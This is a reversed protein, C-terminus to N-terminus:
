VLNEDSCDWEDSSDNEDDHDNFFQSRQNLILNLDRILQSSGQFNALELNDASLKRHKGGSKGDVKKLKECPNTRIENMLSDWPNVQQHRKVNGLPSKSKTKFKFTKIENLDFETPAQKSAPKQNIKAPQPSMEKLEKLFDDAPTSKKNTIQILLNPLPPPPPPPTAFIGLSSLPPPTPVKSPKFFDPLPPPPPAQIDVTQNMIESSSMLPSFEPMESTNLSKPSTESIELNNLPIEYAVGTKSKSSSKIHKSKNQTFLPRKCSTKVLYPKKAVKNSTFKSIKSSTSDNESSNKQNKQKYERLRQLAKKRNEIFLEKQIADDRKKEIITKVQLKLKEAENEKEADFNFKEAESIKNMNIRLASKKSGIDLLKRKLSDVENKLAIAEQAIHALLAVPDEYADHFNSEDESDILFRHDNLIPEDDYEILVLDATEDEEEEEFSIKEIEDFNLENLDPANLLQILQSEKLTFNTQKSGSRLKNLKRKYMLEEENCILLKVRIIKRQINSLDKQAPNQQHEIQFHRKRENLKLQLNYLEIKKTTIEDDLSNRRTKTLIDFLGTLNVNLSMDKFKERDFKMKEILNGYFDILNQKYDIYLSDINNSLSDIELKAEDVIKRLESLADSSAQGPLLAASKIQNVLKREYKEQKQEALERSDFLPKLLNNYYEAYLKLLTEIIQDDSSYNNIVHKANVLLQQKLLFQKQAELEKEQSKLLQALNPDILVNSKTSKTIKSKNINISNKTTNQKFNSLLQSKIENIQTRLRNLNFESYIEFYQESNIDNFLIDIYLKKGLSYFAKDLYIVISKCLENDQLDEDNSELSESRSLEDIRNKFYTYIYGKIPLLQTPYLEELSPEIQSMQENIQYFEKASYIGCWQKTNEDDTNLRHHERSVVLIKEKEVSISVINVIKDDFNVINNSSFPRVAIWEDEDIKPNIVDPTSSDDYCCNTTKNDFSLAM